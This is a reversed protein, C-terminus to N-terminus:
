RCENLVEFIDDEGNLVLDEWTISGNSWMIKAWVIKHDRSDDTNIQLILGCRKGHCIVIDGPKYEKLTFGTNLKRM